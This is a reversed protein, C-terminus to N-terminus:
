ARTETTVMEELSTDDNYIINIYNRDSESQTDL